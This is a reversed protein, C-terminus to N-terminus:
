VPTYRSSVEFWTCDQIFTKDLLNAMEIFDENQVKKWHRSSPKWAMLKDITDEHLSLNGDPDLLIEAMGDRAIPEIIDDLEKVTQRAGILGRSLAASPIMM